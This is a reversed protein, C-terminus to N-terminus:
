DLLLILGAWSYDHNQFSHDFRVTFLFVPPNIGSKTHNM